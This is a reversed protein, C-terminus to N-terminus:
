SSLSPRDGSIWCSWTFPDNAPRVERLRLWQDVSSRRFRIEYNLDIHPIDELMEYVKQPTIRLYAALEEVTMLDREARADMEAQELAALRAALEDAIRRVKTLEETLERCRESMLKRQLSLDWTESPKIPPLSRLLQSAARLSEADERCQPCVALHQQVEAHADPPAEGDLFAVMQERVDECTMM